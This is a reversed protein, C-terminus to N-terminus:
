MQGRILGLCARISSDFKSGRGSKDNLVDTLVFHRKVIKTSNLRAAVEDTICSALLITEAEPTEQLLNEFSKFMAGLRELAGAPDLGAKIEVGATVNGKSDVCTVDPESGFRLQAGNKCLVAVLNGAHLDVWALDIRKASFVRGGKDTVSNLEGKALLKQVLRRRIQREGEQGIRNRWSGDITTGATAFLLGKLRALSLVKAECQFRLHVNIAKALQFAQRDGCAFGNEIREINSVGSVTRLGKQSFSAICRYYRLLRPNTSVLAPHCVHLAPEVRSKVLAGVLAQDLGIKAAVKWNLAPGMTKIAAATDEFLSFYGGSELQNAFFAARLQYQEIFFEVRPNPM